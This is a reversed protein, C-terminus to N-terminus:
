DDISQYILRTFVGESADENPNRTQKMLIAVIQEKPDAWFNTNFYGGWSFRGESGNGRYSGKNNLVSFALSFDARRM